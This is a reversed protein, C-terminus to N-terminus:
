EAICGMCNRSHLEIHADTKPQRSQSIPRATPNSQDHRKKVFQAVHHSAHKRASKSAVTEQCHTRQRIQQMIIAYDQVNYAAIQHQRWIIGSQRGAGRMWAKRALRCLDARSNRNDRGRM